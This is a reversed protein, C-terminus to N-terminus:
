YSNYFRITKVGEPLADVDVEFGERMEAKFPRTPIEVVVGSEDPEEWEFFRSVAEPPELGAAACADYAAKMKRWDEDPPRIGVVHTSMGM